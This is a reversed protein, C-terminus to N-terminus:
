ADELRYNKLQDHLWEPPNFMIADLVSLGETYPEKGQRYPDIGGHIFQLRIGHARFAAGDYLEKGGIANVYRDAGLIHCFDYIREERKLLPNVPLSSGRLLLTEIGLYAMVERLSAELFLGLRTEPNRLVREALAYGERFYPAKHYAMELTRLKDRRDKPVLFTDRILRFSSAHHVEVRLYQPRGGVLIRNRNIWSSKRYTCDDSVLFLDAAAILQWYPFYPFLYPQNAALIM